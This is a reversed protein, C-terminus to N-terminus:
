WFECVGMVLSTEFRCPTKVAALDLGEVFNGRQAFFAQRRINNSIWALNARLWRRAM